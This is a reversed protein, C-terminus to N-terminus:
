SGTGAVECWGGLSGLERSPHVGVNSHACNQACIEPIDGMVLLVGVCQTSLGFEVSLARFGQYFAHFRQQAATEPSCGWRPEFGHRWRSLTTDEAVLRHPRSRLLM